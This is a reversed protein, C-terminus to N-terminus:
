TTNKEKHRQYFWRLFVLMLIIGISDILVDTFLATRGPIFSQHIEDTCAYSVALLLTYTYIPIKKYSQLSKFILLTLIAYESVHAIKRVITELTYVLSTPINIFQNMIEVIYSSSNSSVTGVQHSMYFIYLMWICSLIIYKYKKM